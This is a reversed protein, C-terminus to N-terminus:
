IDGQGWPFSTRRDRDEEAEMILETSSMIMIQMDTKVPHDNTLQPGAARSQLLGPGM